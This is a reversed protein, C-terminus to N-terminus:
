QPIKQKQDPPVIGKKQAEMQIDIALLNIRLLPSWGNAINQAVKRLHYIFTQGTQYQNLHRVNYRVGVSVFGGM